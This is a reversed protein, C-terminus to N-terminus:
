KYHSWQGYGIVKYNEKLIRGIMKKSLWGGCWDFVLNTTIKVGPFLLKLEEVSRIVAADIKEEAGCVSCILKREGVIILFSHCSCCTLGKQCQEYSYPLLKSYPDVPKHSKILFDVVKRHRDTLKSPKAELDKLFRQHQTPYIIKDVFPAQYLYFSPNIFNLFGEIPINFGNKQLFQHLLTESRNSQHLPNTIKKKSLYHYFNDNEYYYNGEYNKVECPIISHQAVFLSDIQFSTNNSELQLDNLIYFKSDLGATLGDFMVEGEYGKKLHLYHQKDEYSLEMRANLSRLIKMEESETRPKLLM